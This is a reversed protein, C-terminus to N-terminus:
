PVQVRIECGRLLPLPVYLMLHVTSLEGVVYSQSLNAKVSSFSAPDHATVNIYSEM